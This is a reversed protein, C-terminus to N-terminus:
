LSCPLVDYLSIRFTPSFSNAAPSRSTPQMHVLVNWPSENRGKGFYSRKRYIELDDIRESSLLILLFEFLNLMLGNFFIAIGIRHIVFPLWNRMEIWTLRVFVWKWTPVIVINSKMMCIALHHSKILYIIMLGTGLGSYITPSPRTLDRTRYSQANRIVVICEGAPAM